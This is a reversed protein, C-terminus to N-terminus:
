IIYKMHTHILLITGYGHFRFYSMNITLMLSSLLSSCQWKKRFHFLKSECHWLYTLTPYWVLASCVHETYTITSLNHSFSMWFMQFNLPLFFVTDFLISSARNGASFLQWASSRFSVAPLLVMFPFSFEYFFFLPLFSRSHMVYSATLLEKVYMLLLYSTM